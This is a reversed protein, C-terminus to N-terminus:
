FHDLLEFNNSSNGMSWFFKLVTIAEQGGPQTNQCFITHPQYIIFLTSYGENHTSIKSTDGTLARWSVTTTVILSWM